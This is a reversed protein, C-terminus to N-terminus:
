KAQNFKGNTNYLLVLGAILKQIAPWLQDIQASTVDDAVETASLLIQKVLALKVAGQGKRPFAEEATDIAKVILTALTALLKVATTFNM